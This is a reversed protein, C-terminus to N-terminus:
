GKSSCFAKVIAEAPTNPTAMMKNMVKESSVPQGAQADRYLMRQDVLVFGSVCGATVHERAIAYTQGTMENTRPTAYVWEIMGGHDGPKAVTAYLEWAGDGSGGSAIKKWTVKYQFTAVCGTREVNTYEM